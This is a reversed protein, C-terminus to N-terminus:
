KRGRLSAPPMSLDFYCHTRQCHGGMKSLELLLFGIPRITAVPALVFIIALSLPWKAACWVCEEGPFYNGFDFGYPPYPKQAGFGSRKM